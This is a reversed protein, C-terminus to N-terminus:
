VRFINIIIDHVDTLIKKDTIFSKTDKFDDFKDIHPINGILPRGLSDEESTLVLIEQFNNYNITNPIYNTLVFSMKRVLIQINRKKSALTSNSYNHTSFYSMIKHISNINSNTCYVIHDVSKVLNPMKLLEEIPIHILTIDYDLNIFQVMDNFLEDDYIDDKVYEHSVESSLGLQYLYGSLPLVASEISELDQVAEHLGIQQLQTAANTDIPEYYMNIGKTYIDADILLTKVKSKELLAAINVATSTIGSNPNGTIVVIKGKPLITALDNKPGGFIGKAHKPEKQPKEKVAKVKSSKEKIPEETPQVIIPEPEAISEPEPQVIIPEPEPEAVSKIVQEPESQVIVPEPEPEIVVSVPEPEVSKIETSESKEKKGFGLFGRKTKKKPENAEAELETKPTAEQEPEASEQEISKPETSEQTLKDAEQSLANWAEETHQPSSVEQVPEKSAQVPEVVEESKSTGMIDDITLEQEKKKTSEYRNFIADVLVRSNIKEVLVCRANTNELLMGEFTDALDQNRTLLVIERKIDKQAMTKLAGMVEALDLMKGNKLFAAESVLILDTEITYDIEKLGESIDPNSYTEFGQKGQLLKELMATQQGALISIHM